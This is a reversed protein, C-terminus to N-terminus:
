DVKAIFNNMGEDFSPWEEQKYDSNNSEEKDNENGKVIM